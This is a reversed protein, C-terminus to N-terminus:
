RRELRMETGRLRSDIRSAMRVEHPLSRAAEPSVCITDRGARLPLHKGAIGFFADLVDRDVESPLRILHSPVGSQWGQTGFDLPPKSPDM